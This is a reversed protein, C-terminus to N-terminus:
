TCKNLLKMNIQNDIKTILFGMDTCTAYQQKKKIM